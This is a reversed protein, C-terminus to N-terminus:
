ELDDLFAWPDSDGEALLGNYGEPAVSGLSREWPAEDEDKARDQWTKRWFEVVRELEADTVFCGQLRVPIPADPAYFLMDGRGILHEAGAADLVVRSDVSAAVAFSIRAPFNAKILGTVVDTSPRQTAVVLHIGTARAMQALRTIIHETEDPINNMLEALEDILVVIYPLRHRWHQDRNYVAINRAQAREMVRYRRDMEHTVWRLVGIIRDLEVEVNGLLHPLGNFRVLEVMKPDIMILRLQAPTNNVVLCTTISTLCVSKGSGTTGGILLHPMMSLDAAFPQGAVDRGLAIALPSNIKYLQQSEIVPRLSVIGPVDNPVEVGIYNHGPVPAQIRVSPASLALTLDRELAAIRTVRVREVIKEGNREVEAFPQVAYQTVTPGSQVGVVKVQMGFDKIAKEIIRANANIEEEDPRAFDTANLLELPPLLENRKRIRKKDNQQNLAFHAEAQEDDPLDHDDAPEGSSDAQSASAREWSSAPQYVLSGTGVSGTVVSPRGPIPPLTVLPPEDSPLASEPQPRPIAVILPSTPRSAAPERGEAQPAPAAGPHRKPRPQPKPLNDIREAAALARANLWALSDMLRRRGVGLMALSSAALLTLLLWGTCTSGLLPFLAEQVAWGVFGGGRGALAVAFPIPDNISLHIYGLALVFFVEGAVVRWWNVRVKFGLKPALICAGALLAVFPVVIKGTGFARGLALAWKDALEGSTTGLLSFLSVLGIAILFLAFIEDAYPPMEKWLRRVWAPEAPRGPKRPAPKPSAARGAAPKLRDAAPRQKALAPAKLPSKPRGAPKRGVSATPRAASARPSKAQGSMAPRPRSATAPPPPPPKPAQASGVDEAEVKPKDPPPGEFEENVDGFGDFGEPYKDEEESRESEHYTM